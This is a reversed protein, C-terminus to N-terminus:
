WTVEEGETEENCLDIGLVSIPDEFITKSELPKEIEDSARVVGM